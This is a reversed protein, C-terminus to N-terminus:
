NSGVNVTDGTTEPTEIAPAIPQPITAEFDAEQDQIDPTQAVVPAEAAPPTTVTATSQESAIIAGFGIVVLIFIIFPLRNNKM